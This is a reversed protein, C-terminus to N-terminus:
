SNYYKLMLKKVEKLEKQTTNGKLYRRLWFFALEIIKKNRIKIVTDRNGILAILNNSNLVMQYTEIKDSVNKIDRNGDAKKGEDRWVRVKGVLQNIYAISYGNDLWRFLFTNDHSYYIGPTIIGGVENYLKKLILNGNMWVTNKLHIYFQIFDRASYIGTKFQFKRHFRLHKKTEARIYEIEGFALHSETNQQLICLLKEIADKELLDDSCLFSLYEGKARSAAFAFNDAMSVHAVPKVTVVRKDFSFSSIIEQVSAETSFNDSIIIEINQYTQDIASQICENLYLPKQNYTPIIISILPCNRLM